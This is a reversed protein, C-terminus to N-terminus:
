TLSSLCAPLQQYGPATAPLSLLAQDFNRVKRMFILSSILTHYRIATRYPRKLVGGPDWIGLEEPNYVSKDGSHRQM